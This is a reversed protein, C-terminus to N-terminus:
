FNMLFTIYDMIDTAIISSLPYWIPPRRLENHSNHITNTDKKTKPSATKIM